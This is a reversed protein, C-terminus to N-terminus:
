GGRLHAGHVEEFYQQHMPDDFDPLAGDHTEFIELFVVGEPACIQDGYRLQSPIIKAQGPRLWEGDIYMAGEVVLNIADGHHLHRGRLPDGPGANVWIIGILPASRDGEVGLPIMGTRANLGRRSFNIDPDKVHTYYGRGAERAEEIQNV